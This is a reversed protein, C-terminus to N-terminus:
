DITDSLIEGVKLTKGGVTVEDDDVLKRGRRTEIIGNVKVEGDIIMWKAQGGTSSIGSFKLFQDLKIM